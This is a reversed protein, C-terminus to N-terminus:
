VKELWFQCLVIRQSSGREGDRVWFGMGGTSGLRERELVLMDVMTVLMFTRLVWRKLSANGVLGYYLAKLIYM